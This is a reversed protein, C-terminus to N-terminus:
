QYLESVGQIDGDELTAKDVEGYDAYGYMTMQSCKDTYIDGLGVSHGLEHTAINEFDMKDSEGSDSWPYDHDDYIQDWEILERLKPPGSFYGWVITVGIAGPSDIDAFYVENSGDPNVTDAVLSASTTSGQGLIDVGAATEWKEINSSLNSRIFTDSLGSSNSANVVWAEVSRWKAGRALFEFCSSTDTEEGGNDGCDSPCNKKEGPECIDNGCVTGPKGYERKYDVFAYGQFTKGDRKALGLSYVGPAIEKANTPLSFSPKQSFSKGSKNTANVRVVVCAVLFAFAVLFMLIKRM